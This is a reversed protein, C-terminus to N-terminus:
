RKTATTLRYSNPTSKIKAEAGVPVDSLESAISNLDGWFWQEPGDDEDGLDLTWGKLLEGGVLAARVEDETREDVIGFTTAHASSVGSFSRDCGCKAAHSPDGECVVAPLTLLEGATAHNFDSPRKKSLREGDPRAVLVRM